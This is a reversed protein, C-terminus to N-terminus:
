SRVLLRENRLLMRAVVRTSPIAATTGNAENAEPLPPLPL